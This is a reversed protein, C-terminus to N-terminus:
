QEATAIIESFLAAIEDFHKAAMIRGRFEAAGRIDRVYAALHKRGEALGTRDGKEAIMQAVQTLATELRVALPPPTYSKGNAAALIESFLWPNGMTGRALMLGDCGTEDLMRVADAGTFIDGNGIVPVSVAEKVRRIGELSIGPSYFQQRTRGHVAILSAGASEVARAVEPATIQESSWGLRLKVTVPLKVADCVARVIAACRDPDTLLASGEGNGTVKAMPCGMNIDIAAPPCERICGDYEGSELMKAAEAMFEPESGFIQVATPAEDLYTAALPATQSHSETARKKRKSYVLAKASVMETVSYTAGCTRCLARFPHDTSGAMPALILAHPLSVATDGHGFTVPSLKMQIGLKRFIKVNSAATAQCSRWFFNYDYQSGYEPM